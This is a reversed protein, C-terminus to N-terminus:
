LTKHCMTAWVLMSHSTENVSLARLPQRNVGRILVLSLVHLITQNIQNSRQHDSDIATQILPRQQGKHCYSTWTMVPSMCNSATAFSRQQALCAASIHCSSHCTLSCSAPILAMSATCHQCCPSKALVRPATWRVHM